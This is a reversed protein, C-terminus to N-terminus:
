SHVIKYIIYYALIILIINAIIFAIFFNNEGSILMLFPTGVFYFVFMLLLAITPACVCWEVGNSGKNLNATTTYSNSGSSYRAGNNRNHGYTLQKNANSKRGGGYSDYQWNKDYKGGRTQNYGHNYTDYKSIYYEEKQNLTHRNPETEELIEYSFTDGYHYDYQMGKNHHIGHSLEEKHQEWRKEINNSQGIYTEGTRDNTIKDIGSTKKNSM